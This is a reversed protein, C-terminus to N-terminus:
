SRRGTMSFYLTDNRRFQEPKLKKLVTAMRQVIEQKSMKSCRPKFKSVLEMCSLPKRELYRRVEEETIESRGDKAKDSELKVKKEPVVGGAPEGGEMRRKLDPTPAESSVETTTMEKKKQLLFASKIRDSDPDDSDSDSESEPEDGPGFDATSAFADMGNLTTKRTPDAENEQENEEEEEDSGILARMGIEEDVGILEEAEKKEPEDSVDTDTDSMYDIERGEEDGDDSEASAILDEENADKHRRAKAQKKLEKRKKAQAKVANKRSQEKESSEKTSEGALEEENAESTATRLQTKLAFQNLVKGREKFKEEAQDIDLAKFRSIAMFNYWESVPYADFINEGSKVFIWYDAHESVGGERIGRYKRTHKDSVTLLWPQESRRYQQSRYGLKKKRAELRAHKGYESGAGFKPLVDEEAYVDANDERDLTVHNWKIVDVGLNGGFKFITVKQEPSLEPVRVIFEERSSSAASM